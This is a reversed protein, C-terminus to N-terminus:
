KHQPHLETPQICMLGQDWRRSFLVMFNAQLSLYFLYPMAKYMGLHMHKDQVSLCSRQFELCLVVYLPLKWNVLCTFFHCEPLARPFIRTYISCVSIGCSRGSPYLVGKYTPRNQVGIFIDKWIGAFTQEEVGGTAAQVSNSCGSACPESRFGAPQDKWRSRVPPRLTGSRVFM